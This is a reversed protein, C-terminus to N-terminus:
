RENKPLQFNLISLQSHFFDMSMESEVRLEGSEVRWKKFSWKNM